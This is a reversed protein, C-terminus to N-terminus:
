KIAPIGNEGVAYIEDQEPTDRNDLRFEAPDTPVVFSNPYMFGPCTNMEGVQTYKGGNVIFILLLMNRNGSDELDCFLYLHHEGGSIKVYYPHFDYARLERYFYESDIHSYLGFSEYIAL